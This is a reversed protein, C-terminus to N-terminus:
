SVSFCDSIIIIVMIVEIVCDNLCVFIQIIAWTNVIKSESM